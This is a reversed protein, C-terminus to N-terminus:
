DVDEVEEAIFGVIYGGMIKWGMYDYYLPRKRAPLRKINRYEEKARELSEKYKAQMAALSEKALEKGSYLAQESSYQNIRHRTGDKDVGYLIWM